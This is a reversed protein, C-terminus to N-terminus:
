VRFWRWYARARVFALLNMARYQERMFTMADAVPVGKVYPPGGPLGPLIQDIV